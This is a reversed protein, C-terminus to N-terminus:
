YNSIFLKDRNSILKKLINYYQILQNLIIYKLQEAIFKEKCAIIYLYKIFKNIIILISNYRNETALNTSKLLKIIFNITIKNQLLESLKQYQIKSYSAYISYKNQQCSFYQKIYIEVAQKIQLFQCYQYLFQLTKTIESYEQLLRNYYKKIYKDIKDIFIQFKEKEISFEETNNRLIQLTTNLKYKNALLLRNQNIKFISYNFLKKTEIYNNKRSFVDARSNDKDLIYQIRFKYQELKELQQM